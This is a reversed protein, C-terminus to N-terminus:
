LEDELNKSKKNNKAQSIELQKGELLHYKTQLAKVYSNSVSFSVYGFGRSLGTREDFIVDAKAVPGFKSFYEKLERQSVTWPLNNVFLTLSKGGDEVPNFTTVNRIQCLKRFMKISCNM